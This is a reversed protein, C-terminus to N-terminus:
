SSPPQSSRAMRRVFDGALLKATDVPALGPPGWDKMRGDVIMRALGYAFSRAALVLLFIDERPHLQGAELARKLMRTMLDTISDIYRRLQPLNLLDPRTPDSILRFQAQHQNAWDLYAEGLASFQGVPDNPNVKVVAKTCSDILIILAEEAAAILLAEDNPFMQLLRDEPEGLTAAVDSRRPACCEQADVMALAARVAREHLGFAETRKLRNM